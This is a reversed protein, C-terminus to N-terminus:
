LIFEFLEKINIDLANAISELNKVTINTTGREVLGIFVRNLDAKEALMEQSYKKEKRLIRIKYGLKKITNINKM